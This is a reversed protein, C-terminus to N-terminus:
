IEESQYETNDNPTIGLVEEEIQAIIDPTLGRKVPQKEKPSALDEYHKVKTFMPIVKCFAYMRGQDIKEGAEMDAKIGEMLKRAFDYLEEHFSQKSKLYEKRRQTWDGEDKWALITKRNVNLKDAISDVAMYDFIYLREAEPYLYRKSNM